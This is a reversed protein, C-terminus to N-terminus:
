RRRRAILNILDDLEEVVAWLAHAAESHGTTHLRYAREHLRGRMLRLAAVALNV